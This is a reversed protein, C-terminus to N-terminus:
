LGMNKLISDMEDFPLSDIDVEKARQSKSEKVVEKLSKSEKVVEKVVEKIEWISGFIVRLICLAISSGFLVLSWVISYGLVYVFWGEPWEEGYYKCIVLSVLSVFALFMLMLTNMMDNTRELTRRGSSCWVVGVASTM